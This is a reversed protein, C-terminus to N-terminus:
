ASGHGGRQRELRKLRAELRDSDFRLQDVADNHDTQLQRGDPLWLTRRTHAVRSSVRLAAAPGVVEEGDAYEIVLLGQADIRFHVLYQAASHGDYLYAAVRM